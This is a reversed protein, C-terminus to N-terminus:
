NNIWEHYEMDFRVKDQSYLYDGYGRKRQGQNGTGKWNESNAHKTNLYERFAKKTHTAQKKM